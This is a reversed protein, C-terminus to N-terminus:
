RARKNQPTQPINNESIVKNNDQLFNEKNTECKDLFELLHKWASQTYYIDSVHPQHKQQGDFRWELTYQSSIIEYDITDILQTGPQMNMCVCLYFGEPSTKAIQKLLNEAPLMATNAHKTGIGLNIENQFREGGIAYAVAHLYEYELKSTEVEAARGIETASITKNKNKAMVIQQNRSAAKKANNIIEETLFIEHYKKDGLRPNPSKIDKKIIHYPSAISRQPTAYVNLDVPNNTFKTVFGFKKARYMETGGPTMGKLPSNNESYHTISIPRDTAINKAEIQTRNLAEINIDKNELQIHNTNFVSATKLKKKNGEIDLFEQAHDARMHFAGVMDHSRKLNKKADLRNLIQASSKAPKRKKTKEEAAISKFVSSLNKTPTDIVAKPKKKPTRNNM